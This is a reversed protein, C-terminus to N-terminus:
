TPGTSRPWFLDGRRDVRAAEAQRKLGETSTSFNCPFINDVALNEMMRRLWRPFEFGTFLRETEFYRLDM